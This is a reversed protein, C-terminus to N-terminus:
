RSRGVPRGPLAPGAIPCATFITQAYAETDTPTLPELSTPNLEGDIRMVPPSGVKLHLDSAEVEIVKKLLDDLAVAM